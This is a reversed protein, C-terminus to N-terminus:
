GRRPSWNGTRMYYDLARITPRPDDRYEGAHWGRKFEEATLGLYEWAKDDLVGSKVVSVVM